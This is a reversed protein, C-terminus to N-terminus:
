GLHVHADAAAAPTGFRETILVTAGRGHTVLCIRQPFASSESHSLWICKQELGHWVVRWPQYTWEYEGLPEPFKRQWMRPLVLVTLTKITTLRTTMLFHEEPNWHWSILEVALLKLWREMCSMWTKERPFFFQKCKQDNARGLNPKKINGGPLLQAPDSWQLNWDSKDDQCTHLYWFEPPLPPLFLFQLGDETLTYM